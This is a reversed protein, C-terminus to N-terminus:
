ECIISTCKIVKEEDIEEEEETLGLGGRGRGGGIREGVATSM